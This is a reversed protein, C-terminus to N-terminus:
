IKKSILVEIYEARIGLSLDDYTIMTTPMHCCEYIIRPLDYGFHMTVPSGKSDIPNGHYEPEELFVVDGDKYYAWRQTPSSKNVLPVTFVHAGGTKLTRAIEQFAKIPNDIHEFVDQSIHLDISEDKFTLAELNECRVGNIVAGLEQGPFLHSPIYKKCERALRVSGGRNVPSTEHIILDRWNPFFQELAHMLARERPLSGCNKCIFHDRLWTNTAVFSANKNCTPCYGYSILVNNNDKVTNKLFSFM